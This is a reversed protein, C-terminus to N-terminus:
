ECCFSMLRLTGAQSAIEWSPLCLGTLTMKQFGELQSSPTPRKHLRNEQSQGSILIQQCHYYPKLRYIGHKQISKQKVYPSSAINAVRTSSIRSTIQNHRTTEINATIKSIYSQFISTNGETKSYYYQDYINEIARQKPQRKDEVKLM